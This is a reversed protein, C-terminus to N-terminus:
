RAADHREESLTFHSRLQWVREASKQWIHV